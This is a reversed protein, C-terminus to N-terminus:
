KENTHLVQRETIIYNCPLDFPERPLEDTLRSEACLAAAVARTRALFRDYYGGGYGLRYGNRDCSLAPVIVLSIGDPPIEPAGSSPEPIGYAGSKLEDLSLIRRASMERSQRVAARLPEAHM